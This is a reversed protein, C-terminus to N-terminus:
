FRVGLKVADSPDRYVAMFADAADVFDVIPDVVGESSLRGRQFMTVLTRYIRPRDWLPYERMPNGWDPLSIVLDIRNHFADAGLEIESAGGKYYGCTAVRGALGVSRIAERLAKYNGSAEIAIDAPQGLYERVEIAVDCQTPDLTLDAFKAALKRRKELPDVAIINLCGAQRLL